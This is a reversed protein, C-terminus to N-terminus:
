AKEESRIEASRDVDRVQADVEEAHAGVAFPGLRTADDLDGLVERLRDRSFVNEDDFIDDVSAQGDRMQHVQEARPLRAGHMDARQKVLGCASADLDFDVIEAERDFVLEDDAVAEVEGLAKAIKRVDTDDLPGSARGYAPRGGSPCKSRLSPRLGA